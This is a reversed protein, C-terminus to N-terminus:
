KVISGEFHDSYVKKGDHYVWMAEVDDQSNVAEKAANSLAENFVADPKNDSLVKIVDPVSVELIVNMGGKLDLGLSIGMERCDKLTWNGFYVKENSLSDLYAQEVAEDGNAIQKAKNDYYRVVASFSLYFLCVLILLVSIIKIFGKNQM